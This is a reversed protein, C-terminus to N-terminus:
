KLEEQEQRQWMRVEKVRQWIMPNKGKENCCSWESPDRGREEVWSPQAATNESTTATEFCSFSYEM